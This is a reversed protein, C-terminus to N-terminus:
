NSFIAARRKLGDALAQSSTIFTIISVFLLTVCNVFTYCLKGTAEM